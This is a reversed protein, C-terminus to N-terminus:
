IITTIVNPLNNNGRSVSESGSSLCPLSAWHPPLWLCVLGPSPVPPGASPVWETHSPERLTGPSSSARRGETRSRTKLPGEQCGTWRFGAGAPPLTLSAYMGQSNVKLTWWDWITALRPFAVMCVKLTWRSNEGAESQPLTLSAYM